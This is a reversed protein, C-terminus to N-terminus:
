VIITGSDNDYSIKEGKIGYKSSIEEVTKNYRQLELKYEQDLKAVQAKQKEHKLVLLDIELKINRLNQEEVALLLRANELDKPAILLTRHDSPELILNTKTEEEKKTNRKTTAM